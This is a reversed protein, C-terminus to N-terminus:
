KKRFQKTVKYKKDDLLLYEKFKTYEEVKGLYLFVPFEINDEINCEIALIREQTQNELILWDLCEITEDSNYTGLNYYGNTGNVYLRYNM